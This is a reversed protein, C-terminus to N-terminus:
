QAVPGGQNIRPDGTGTGPETKLQPNIPMGNNLGASPQFTGAMAPSGNQRANIKDLTRYINAADPPAYNDMPIVLDAVPYIQQIQKGQAEKLSVVQLVDDAIIYTLKAQKLILNLVSKLPVADVKLSVAQDPNVGESKMIETQNFVINMKLYQQLYKVTEKLSTNNFDVTVPTSLKREIDKERETKPGTGRLTRTGDKRPMAREQFHKADL